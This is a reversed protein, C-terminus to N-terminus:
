STEQREDARVKHVERLIYGGGSGQLIRLRQAPVQVAYHKTRRTATRTKRQDTGSQNRRINEEKKQGRQYRADRSGSRTSKPTVDRGICSMENSPLAPKSETAWGEQNKELRSGEKVVTSAEL